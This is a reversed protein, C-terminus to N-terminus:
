RWITPVVAGERAVREMLADDPPPSRTRSIGDSRLHADARSEDGAEAILEKLGIGGLKVGKRRARIRAIAALAGEADFNPM